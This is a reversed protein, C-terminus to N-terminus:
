QNELIGRFRSNLTSSHSPSIRSTRAPTSVTSPESNCSYTNLSGRELHSVVASIIDLKVDFTM